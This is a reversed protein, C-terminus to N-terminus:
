LSEIAVLAEECGGLYAAGFLNLHNLLHYLNYIRRKLAYTRSAPRCARYAAYFPAGFGGFLETMAIDVEADGYYPAPDILWVRGEDACLVNGNWLDGHVLSASVPEANLFERLGESKRRLRSTFSGRLRDDAVLGIQYELRQRLFFRGWDDDFANPQPNLGIYNDEGFGFREHPRAHIAALGEGLRTWHGPTCSTPRIRTTTLSREDVAIVEPVDIGAGAAARRLEALGHAEKLLHDAYPSCNRKVFWGQTSREGAPEGQLSTAM